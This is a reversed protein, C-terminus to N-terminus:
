SAKSQHCCPPPSVTKKVPPKISQAKSRVIDSILARAVVKEVM